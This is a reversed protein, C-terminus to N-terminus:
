FFFFEGLLFIAEADKIQPLVEQFAICVGNQEVEEVFQAAAPRGYDDDVAIAGVYLWNFHQVLFALATAENKANPYTRLISPFQSKDSLCKCSSAYSVQVYWVCGFCSNM